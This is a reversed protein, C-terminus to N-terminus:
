YTLSKDKVFLIDMVIESNWASMAKMSKHRIADLETISSINFDDSVVIHVLLYTNRGRKNVRYEILDSPVSKLTSMLKKEIKEIEEVPPAMVIVERFSSVLVKVPIPIAFVVLFTLLLPDIYSAYQSYGGQSLWWAFMFGLLVSASLMGDIFWYKAEVSVLVSQTDRGAKHMLAAVIFCGLTAMVGYVVAWGYEAETGGALLRKIAEVGAYVCAVIVILSKFLNLTPELTTYGFHFQDDDSREAMKAVKLTLLATAFAILSYIGDFLIADSKTYVAFVLALVVFFIVGYLSTKLAQLERHVHNSSKM